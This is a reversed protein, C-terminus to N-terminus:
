NAAPQNFKAFVAQTFTWRYIAFASRRIRSDPAQRKFAKTWVEEVFVRVAEELVSDRAIIIGARDYEAKILGAIGAKLHEDSAMGNASLVEAQELAIRFGREYVNAGDDRRPAKQYKAMAEAFSSISKDQESMSVTEELINSAFRKIASVKFDSESVSAAKSYAMCAASFRTAPDAVSLAMDLGFGTQESIAEIGRLLRIAPPLQELRLGRGGIALEIADPLTDFWVFDRTPRPLGRFVHVPRGLRLAMELIGRVFGIQGMKKSDGVMTAPFAEFRSILIRKSVGNSNSFTMKSPDSKDARMMDILRMNVPEGDM